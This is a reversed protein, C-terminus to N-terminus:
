AAKKLLALIWFLVLALASATIHVFQSLTFITNM